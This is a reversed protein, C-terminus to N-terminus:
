NWVVQVNGLLRKAFYTAVQLTMRILKAIILALQSLIGLQVVVTNEVTKM